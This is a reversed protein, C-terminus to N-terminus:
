CLELITRFAAFKGKYRESYVAQLSAAYNQKYNEYDELSNLFYQISYTHGENEEVSLVKFLKNEIFLGTKLVEPIHVSRMWTLWDEHIDLDVNVTVNYLIM